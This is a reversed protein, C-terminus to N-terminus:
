IHQPHLLVVYHSSGQPPWRVLSAILIVAAAGGINLFVHSAQNGHQEYEGRAILLCFEVRLPCLYAPCYAM